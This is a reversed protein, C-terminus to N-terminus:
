VAAVAPLLSHPLTPILLSIMQTLLWLYFVFGVDQEQLIVPTAPLM